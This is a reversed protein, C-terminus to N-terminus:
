TILPHPLWRRSTRMSGPLTLNADLLGDIWGSQPIALSSSFTKRVFERVQFYILYNTKSPIGYEKELQAASMFVGDKFLNKVCEVGARYWERFATGGLAPFFLHNGYVAASLLANRNKFHTRFQVWIKISDHVVPNNTYLHKSLPLPACVLSRLSMPSSAYREVHVWVPTEDDDLQSVWFLLKHINAAWYYHM